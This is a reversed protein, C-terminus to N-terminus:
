DKRCRREVLEPENKPRTPRGGKDREALPAFRMASSRAEERHVSARSTDSNGHRAECGVRLSLIGADTRACNVRSLFSGCLLSKRKKSSVKYFQFIKRGDFSMTNWLQIKRSPAPRCGKKKATNRARSLSLSSPVRLQAKRGGRVPFFIFVTSRGRLFHPFHPFNLLHPLHFFYPIEVPARGFSDFKVISRQHYNM